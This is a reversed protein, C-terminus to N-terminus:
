TTRPTTSSLSPMRRAFRMPPENKAAEDDGVAVGVVYRGARLHEAYRRVHDADESVVSQLRRMIAGATGHAEGGVDIRALGEDGHLVDCRDAGFGAQELRQRADELTADDALIGVVSGRPYPFSDSPNSSSALIDAETGPNCTAVSGRKLRGTSLLSRRTCLDPCTQLDGRDHAEGSCAFGGGSCWGRGCAAASMPRAGAHGELFGRRHRRTGVERAGHPTAQSIATANLLTPGMYVPAAPDGSARAPRPGARDPRDHRGWLPGDDRLRRRRTM